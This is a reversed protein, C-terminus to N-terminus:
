GKFYRHSVFPLAVVEAVDLISNTLLGMTPVIIAPNEGPAARPNGIELQVLKDGSAALFDSFVNVVFNTSTQGDDFVITGSTSFYDIGDVAGGFLPDNVTRYDVLVRGTSGGLRNITVIM